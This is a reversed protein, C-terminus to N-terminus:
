SKHKNNLYLDFLSCINLHLYSLGHKLLYDQTWAKIFILTINSLIILIFFLWKGLRDFFILSSKIDISIKIKKIIYFVNNIM